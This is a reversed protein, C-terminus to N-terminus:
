QELSIFEIQFFLRKSGYYVIIGTETGALASSDVAITFQTSSLKTIINGNVNNIQADIATNGSHSNYVYILDGTNLTNFAPSTITFLTPNGYTITYTGSDSDFIENGFPTFFQTTLTEVRAMPKRFTFLPQRPVLYMRDGVTQRVDFEFHYNELTPVSLTPDNFEPVIVSQSNFEQLLMRIKAYPNIVSANVPAWFPFMRMQIVQQITDLVRMDGLQGPKGSTHINWKYYNPNGYVAPVRNRSDLQIIQHVLNINFFNTAVSQIRSFMEETSDAALFKEVLKMVKYVEKNVIYQSKVASLPLINDPSSRQGEVRERDIVADGRRNQHATFKFQNENATLQSVEKKQYDTISARDTDDSVGSLSTDVDQEQVTALIQPYRTLFDGAIRKICEAYTLQYFKTEPLRSIFKALADVQGIRMKRKTVGSVANAIVNLSDESLLLNFNSHHILTDPPVTVDGQKRLLKRRGERNTNAM